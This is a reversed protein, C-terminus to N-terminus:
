ALKRRLSFLGRPLYRLFRESDLVSVPTIVVHRLGAEAMPHLTRAIREPSGWLVNDILLKEPVQQLASEIEDPELEEPRMDPYGAFGEGLPHTLGYRKWVADAYLLGIWGAIPRQFFARADEDSPVLVAPIALSPVIREPDRGAERAHRRVTALRDGYEEPSLINSPYWGDAYQGTLRLMRPGHAALWISPIKGEPIQLDLVADSLSFHEGTFDFPGTSVLCRRIIQLAEELKSVAREHSIGFPITNEAEGAGLGLIPARRTLHALTMLAQAILVPHRRLPETVGVGLRMNGAPSALHGLLTQYDYHEHALPRDRALWTLDERWLHQPYFDQFHDWFMAADLGVLRSIRVAMTVDRMPPKAPINIGLRVPHHGM